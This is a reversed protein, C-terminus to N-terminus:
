DFIKKKDKQTDKIDQQQCVKIFKEHITIAVSLILDKESSPQLSLSSTACALSCQKLSSVRGLQESLEVQQHLSEDPCLQAAFCGFM